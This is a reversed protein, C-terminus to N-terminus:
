ERRPDGRAILLEVRREIRGTAGAGVLQGPQSSKCPCGVRGSHHSRSRRVGRRRKRECREEVERELRLAKWKDERLRELADLLKKAAPGRRGVRHELRIAPVECERL